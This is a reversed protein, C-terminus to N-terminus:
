LLFCIDKTIFECVGTSPYVPFRRVEDLLRSLILNVAKLVDDVSGSVM